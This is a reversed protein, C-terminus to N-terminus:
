DLDGGEGFHRELEELLEDSIEDSVEITPKNQTTEMDLKVTETNNNKKAVYHAETPEEDKCVVWAEGIQQIFKKEKLGM